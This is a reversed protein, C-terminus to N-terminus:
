ASAADEEKVKAPAASEEPARTATSNVVEQAGPTKAELRRYERLEEVKRALVKVAVEVSRPDGQRIGPQLSREALVRDLLDIRSAVTM